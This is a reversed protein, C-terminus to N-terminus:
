EGSEERKVPLTGLPLVIMGFTKSEYDVGVSNGVELRVLQHGQFEEVAGKLEARFKSGDGIDASIEGREGSLDLSYDLEKSKFTLADKDKSFDIEEMLWRDGPNAERLMIGIKKGKGRREARYILHYNQPFENGSFSFIGNASYPKKLRGRKWLPSLSVQTKGMGDRQRWQGFEFYSLVVSNKGFVIKLDGSEELELTVKQIATGPRRPVLFGERKTAFYESEAAKDEGEPNAMAQGIFLSGLVAVAQWIIKSPKCM